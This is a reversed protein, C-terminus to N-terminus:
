LKLQDAEGRVGHMVAEVHGYPRPCWGGATIKKQRGPSEPKARNKIKKTSRLGTNRIGSM